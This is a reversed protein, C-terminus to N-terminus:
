QCASVVEIARSTHEALWPKTEKIRERYADAIKDLDLKMIEKKFLLPGYGSRIMSVTQNFDSLKEDYTLDRSYANTSGLIIM